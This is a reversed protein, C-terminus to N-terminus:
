CVTRFKHIWESIMLFTGEPDDNLLEPKMRRRPFIIAHPVFLGVINIYCAVTIIQGRETSVIESVLCKGKLYIVESIKNSVASMGSEERNFM